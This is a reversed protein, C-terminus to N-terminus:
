RDYWRLHVAFAAALPMLMSGSGAERHRVIRWGPQAGRRWGLGEGTVTAIEAGDAGSVSFATSLMRGRIRGAHHGHRDLLELSRGLSWPTRRVTAIVAGAADTLEMRRHLCRRRVVLAAGGGQPVINLEAPDRGLRGLGLLRCLVRQLRPVRDQALALGGPAQLALRRPGFWRRCSVHVFLEDGHLLDALDM